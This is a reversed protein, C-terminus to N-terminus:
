RSPPRLGDIVVRIMTEAVAPDGDHTATMSLGGILRSVTETDVDPRLQGAARGADLIRGIMERTATGVDRFVPADAGLQALIVEKMGRKVAATRLYERLVATLAEDPPLTDAFRHGAEVIEESQVRYAAEVLAERSPFNRYLTGIGVGAAEAVRELAVETGDSGFLDRAATVIRARNRVADARPARRPTGTRSTTM